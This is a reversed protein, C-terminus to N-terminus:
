RRRYDEPINSLKPTIADSFAEYGTTLWSARSEFESERYHAHRPDLATAAEIAAAAPIIMKRNCRTRDVSSAWTSEAKGAQWQHKKGIFGIVDQSRRIREGQKECWRRYCQYLDSGLCPCVPVMGGNEAPIELALWETVFREESSVSQQILEQKAVTMPPKSAVTFGSIDRNLLFDFLAERGGNEIEEIVEDFIADPLKPPTWIVCHRRDDDELVLPHRENSLFVINMHNAENHAAVNKPNVRITEGTIFGKLRNKIHYMDQKALVEDAVIFLKREAWDANFKDELAEQGLVRGYVGYIWVIAEFFLSKGTGQPGHMLLASHMKAGPRQIPLALWNLVWNYLDQHNKENWCLYSLLDLLAECRGKKPVTPWGTYLNCRIRPDSQSPDFGIESDRAVRWDPHERLDDWGGRPILQIVDEKAILRSEAQDFVVKGGFGYTGWYRAVADDISLRAVMPADAGSNIAAALTTAATTLWGCETLFGEIQARVTAIGELAALDNFDTGGKEGELPRADAFVPTLFRGEVAFAATQAAIVGPNGASRYDDDACILIRARPYHKKLVKAVHQLNNADFAVACPLNVANSVTWATAYGEALLLLDRPAGGVLHYFGQTQLGKPWYQKELKSGRDKGRILQLGHVKGNPDCMPIICTDVTPHFRIGDAGVGKRELYSSSGTHQYARWVRSAQLAARDAEAQRMAKARRANDRRRENIADKEARSLSLSKPPSVPIRGNDNGHWIGYAGVLYDDTGARFTSLHYWGRKERDEQVHCKKPKHTDIFPEGSKFILGHDVMEGIVEDYNVWM